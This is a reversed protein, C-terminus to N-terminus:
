LYVIDMNLLRCPCHHGVVLPARYYPNSLFTRSKPIGNTETV